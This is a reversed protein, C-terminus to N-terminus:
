RADITEIDAEWTASCGVQLEVTAMYKGGYKPCSSFRVFVDSKLYAKPAECLV